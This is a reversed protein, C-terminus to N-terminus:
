LYSSPSKLLIPPRICRTVCASSTTAQLRYMLSLGIGTTYVLLDNKIVCSLCHLCRCDVQADIWTVAHNLTAVLDLPPHGAQVSGVVCCLLLVFNAPASSCGSTSHHLLHHSHSSHEHKPSVRHSGCFCLFIQRHLMTLAGYSKSSNCPCLPARTPAFGSPSRMTFAGSRTSRCNDLLLCCTICARRAQLRRCDAQAYILTISHDFHHRRVVTTIV